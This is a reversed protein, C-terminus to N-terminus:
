VNQYCLTLCIIYHIQMCDAMHLYTNIGKCNVVLESGGCWFNRRQLDGRCGCLISILSLALSDNMHYEASTM